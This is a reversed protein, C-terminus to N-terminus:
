TCNTLDTIRAANNPTLDIGLSTVRIDESSGVADLNYKALDARITGPVVIGTGSNAVLVALRPALISAPRFTIQNGSLSITKGTQQGIVGSWDTSLVTSLTITQGPAATRPVLGKISFTSQGLPFTVTDTFTLTKNTTGAADVPGAVVRGNADVITVNTISHTNAPGTAGGLSLRFGIRRATIPEITTNIVFTGLPQNPVNSGVTTGLSSPTLSLTAKVIPAPAPKPALPTKFSLENSQFRLGTGLGLTSVSVRFFYTTGPTLRGTPFTISTPISPAGVVSPPLAFKSATDCPARYSGSVTSIQFCATAGSHIGAPIGFFGNLIFPASPDSGNTTQASLALASQNGGPIPTGGPFGFPNVQAFAGQTGLLLIALVAFISYKKM